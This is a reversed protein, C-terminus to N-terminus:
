ARGYVVCERRAFDHSALVGAVLAAIKAGGQASPEIPPLLSDDGANHYVLPQDFVVLRSRVAEGLTVDNFTALAACAEATLGLFDAAPSLERGPNPM